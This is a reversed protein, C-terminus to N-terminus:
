TSCKPGCCRLSVIACHGVNSMCTYLTHHIVDFGLSIDVEAEVEAEENRRYDGRYLAWGAGLFSSADAPSAPETRLRRVRCVLVSHGRPPCAAYISARCVVLILGGM